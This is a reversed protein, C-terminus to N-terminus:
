AWSKRLSSGGVGLASKEPFARAFAGKVLKSMGSFRATSWGQKGKPAALLYGGSPLKMEVLYAQLLEVTRVGLVKAPIPVKRIKAIGLAVDMEQAPLRGGQGEVM